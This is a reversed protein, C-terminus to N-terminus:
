SPIITSQKLARDLLIILMQYPVNEGVCSVPQLSGSFPLQVQSIHKVSRRFPHMFANPLVLLFYLRQSWNM